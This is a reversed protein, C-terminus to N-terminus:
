NLLKFNVIGAILNWFLNHKKQKHRRVEKCIRFVKIERNINEIKVRTRALERNYEKQEETLKEGKSKKYPLKAGKIYKKVGVFGLDFEASKANQIVQYKWIRSEKFMKFDHVRGYDTDISLIQKLDTSYSILAKETHCKQKGSYKLKQQKIARETRQECVDVIVRELVVNGLSKLNPLRLVKVLVCCMKNFIKNAFSESIGFELGLVVFTPYDRLYRLTMLLRDKLRFKSKRGRKSWTCESSEIFEKLKKFIIEFQNKKVGTLRLFKSDNHKKYKKYYRM